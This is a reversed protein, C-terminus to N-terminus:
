DGLATRGCGSVCTLLLPSLHRVPLCPGAAAPLDSVFVLQQDDLFPHLGRGRVLDGLREPDRNCRDDLPRGCEPFASRRRQPRFPAPRSRLALRVRDDALVHDRQLSFVLRPPRPPDAVHECAEFGEADRFLLDPLDQMVLSEDFCRRRRRRALVARPAELARRRVLEPLRVDERKAQPARLPEVDAHEHVVVAPEDDPVRERVMLLRRQHHLRELVTQRRVPLRGLHQGVVAPLVRDPAALGLEFLQQDAGANVVDATSRLMRLREALDLAEPLCEPVLKETARDERVGDVRLLAERVVQRVVVKLSWVLREVPVNRCIAEELGRRVHAGLDLARDGRVRQPQRELLRRALRKVDDTLEAILAQRDCGALLAELDVDAIAGL